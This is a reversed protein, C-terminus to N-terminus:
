TAQDGIMEHSVLGAATLDALATPASAPVSAPASGPASEPSQSDM